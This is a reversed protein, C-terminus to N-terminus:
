MDERKTVECSIGGGLVRGRGPEKVRRNMGLEQRLDGGMRRDEGLDSGREPGQVREPEQM